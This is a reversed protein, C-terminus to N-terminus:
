YIVVLLLLVYFVNNNTQLYIKHVKNYMLNIYPEYLTDILNMVTIM